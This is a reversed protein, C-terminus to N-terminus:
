QLIATVYINELNNFGVDLCRRLFVGHRHREREREKQPNDQQLSIPVNRHISLVDCTFNLIGASWLMQERHLSCGGELNELNLLVFDVNQKLIM